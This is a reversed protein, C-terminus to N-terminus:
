CDGLHDLGITRQDLPPTLRPAPADRRTPLRGDDTYRCRDKPLTAARTRTRPPVVFVQFFIGLIIGTADRAPARPSIIKDSIIEAENNRILDGNNNGTIVRQPERAGPPRFKGIVGNLFEEEDGRAHAGGCDTKSPWPLNSRMGAHVPAVSLKHSRDCL